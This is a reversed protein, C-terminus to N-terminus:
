QLTSAVSGRHVSVHFFCLFVLINIREELLLGFVSPSRSAPQSPLLNGGERGGGEWHQRVM